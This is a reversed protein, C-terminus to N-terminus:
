KVSYSWNDAKYIRYCPGNTNFSLSYSAGQFMACLDSFSFLILRTPVLLRAHGCAQQEGPTCFQRRANQSDLHLEYNKDLSIAANYASHNLTSMDRFNERPTNSPLRSPVDMCACLRRRHICWREVDLKNLEQPCSSQGRRKGTALSSLCGWGRLGTNPESGPRGKLRSKRLASASM